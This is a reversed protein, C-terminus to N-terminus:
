GSILHVPDGAFGVAVTITDNATTGAGALYNMYWYGNNTAANYSPSIPIQFHLWCGDYRQTATRTPCTSAGGSATVLVSAQNPATLPVSDGNPPSLSPPNRQTGLDWATVPPSSSTAVALTNDLISITVTGSSSNVDGVDYIDVSISQGAYSQPLQFLPVNFGGGTVPTYM